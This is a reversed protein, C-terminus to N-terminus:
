KIQANAISTFIEIIEEAKECGVQNLINEVYQLTQEHQKTYVSEEHDILHVHLIRKDDNSRVREVLNKEELSTLTRNMQSKMMKTIACLETASMQKDPHNHLLNCVIAENYPLQTSVRQADITLIMMLFSTLLREKVEQM